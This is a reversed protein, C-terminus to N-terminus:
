VKFSDDHVYRKTNRAFFRYASDLLLLLAAIAAVISVFSKM